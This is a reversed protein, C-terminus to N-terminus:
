EKELVVKAGGISEIEVNTILFLLILRKANPQPVREIIGISPTSDVGYKKLFKEAVEAIGKIYEEQDIEPPGYFIAFFQSKDTVGFKVGNSLLYPSEDSLVLLKALVASIAEEINESVNEIILGPIHIGTGGERITEVLWNLPDRTTSALLWTALWYAPAENIKRVFIKEAINKAGRDSFVILALRRPFEEKLKKFGNLISQMNRFMNDGFNFTAVRTAIVIIPLSQSVDSLSILLSRTITEFATRFTGGCASGVLLILNNLSQTTFIKKLKDGIPLIFPKILDFKLIGPNPVPFVRDRELGNNYLKVAEQRSIIFYVINKIYPILKIMKLAMAAGSTGCAIIKILLSKLRITQYKDSKKDNNGKVYKLFISVFFM